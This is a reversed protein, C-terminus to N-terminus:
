LAKKKSTRFYSAKAAARFLCRDLMRQSKWLDKAHIWGTIDTDDFSIRNYIELVIPIYKEFVSFENEHTSNLQATNKLCPSTLRRIAKWSDWLSWSSPPKSQQSRRPSDILRKKSLSCFFPHRNWLINSWSDWNETTKNRLKTHRLLDYSDVGLRILWNPDFSDIQISPCVPHSTTIENFHGLSNFCSKLIMGCGM